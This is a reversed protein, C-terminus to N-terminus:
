LHTERKERTLLICIHASSFYSLPETHFSFIHVVKNKPGL